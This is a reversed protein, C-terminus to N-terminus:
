KKVCNADLLKAIDLGMKSQGEKYVEDPTFDIRGGPGRIELPQLVKWSGDPQREFKKSQQHWLLNPAIPAAISRLVDLLHKRVSYDTKIHLM